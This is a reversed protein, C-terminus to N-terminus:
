AGLMMQGCVRVVNGNVATSGPSAFWAITEAVDVPLGGQSMANLRRGVERTALPVAATMQTEIFGPAVANVTIGDPLDDKLSDVLGIVGAKSTAYNTQGVNGAIGAISAVGIIRGNARIAKQELLERSIREPATLNVGIVSEWRDESMNALKKDRTIGANHVVVDVGGHETLVQQAIRQPADKATIDLALYDGELENTLKVLADAAQPVDVGIVTAGDRHLVHAIQEGIGRSAGTVLAVKGALPRLWDDVDGAHTHEPTTGIRVVQGSVYASKPSLLFALTSLLAGEAGQAVYVLQVTGGRGVEKGLSRTFGELARQAVREPGGVTEPPTGIVVLRPCAELSRMLPGFFDRLAGLQSSDTLGTADFVLGRYRSEPDAARSGFVDLRDLLGPLSEALRGPGGPLVTGTVLPDGAAYRLLPVPAPLGLNKALFRGIPSQVFDQYRDTV